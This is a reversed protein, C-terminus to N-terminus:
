RNLRWRSGKTKGELVLVGNAQLELTDREITKVSVGLREAMEAQTLSGHSKILGVIAQQRQNKKQVAVSKKGVNNVSMEERNGVNNVSMESLNGVFDDGDAYTLSFLFQQGNVVEVKYDRYYLPALQLINRTGSGLEEVWKLERFVKVILPNKTYNGLQRLSIEGEPIHPILRSPNRTVVRDKFVEFFCAFGASFDSHVCLNGVIERMLDLRLDRRQSSGAPLYFKDPLHRVVFKTLEGYVKILNCQLTVRDDYRNATEELRMYQGFTCMRFLLEYRFRPLFRQLAEDKGFLLLAAYRLRGDGEWLGCSSLIEEDNMTLWPHDARINVLVRRCEAFTEADLDALTLGDLCREEFVNPNKREFLAQLLEPSDTVDIDADGNRDWYRGNYRYVYQGGAVRMYIVVKDDIRVIEPEIYPVPLFAEQNNVTTIINSKLDVAKGPSVGVVEGGDNVGLLIEGGGRNLFSCVTEYVSGSIRDTCSKYEIMVGEGKLCLEKIKEATM